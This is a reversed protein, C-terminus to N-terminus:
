RLNSVRTGIELFQVLATIDGNFVFGRSQDTVNIGHHEAYDRMHPPLVSSMQFLAKAYDDPLSDMDDPFLIQNGETDSIHLNFLLANGDEGAIDMIARATATPDGDSSEGDSLNLIIPPFSKPNADVWSRILSYATSMASCLPTGGNAVPDIWVPFKIKQEIIGGAGDSVKRTREEVRIPSAAIQSLPVIQQGVLKGGLLSGVGSGYGIVGVHFYNRIGEEKACRIVLEALLRNLSDAVVDAKRYTTGGGAIFDAMSGSQDVLFLFCTPTLRSIEAEYMLSEPDGLVNAGHSCYSRSPQPDHM